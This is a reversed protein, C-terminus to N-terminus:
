EGYMSSFIRVYDVSMHPYKRYLYRCLKKFLERYKKDWGYDLIGDLLKEIEREHAITGAIVKEVLLEYELYKQHKVAECEAIMEVLMDLDAQENRNNGSQKMNDL